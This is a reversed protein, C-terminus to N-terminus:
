KRKKDWLATLAAMTVGWLLHGGIMMANRRAPHQTAPRLIGLAPLWGLYSGAWAALGYVLGKVAPPGPVRSEFTGYLAGLATGFGYHAALSAAKHEPTNLHEEEGAEEIFHSTIEHPPLPYREQIPLRRHLAVMLATMPITAVCGALAGIMIRNM